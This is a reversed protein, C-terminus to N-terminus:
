KEGNHNWVIVCDMGEAMFPEGYKEILEILENDPRSFNYGHRYAIMALLGKDGYKFAELGYSNQGYYINDKNEM